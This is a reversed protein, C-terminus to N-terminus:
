IGYRNNAVRQKKRGRMNVDEVNESENIRLHYRCSVINEVQVLVTRGVVRNDAALIRCIWHPRLLFFRM